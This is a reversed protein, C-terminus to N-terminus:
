TSLVYFYFGKISQKNSGFAVKNLKGRNNLVIQWEIDNGLQKVLELYEKVAVRKTDANLHYKKAEDSVWIWALQGRVNPDGIREETSNEFWDKLLNHFSQKNIPSKSEVRRIPM